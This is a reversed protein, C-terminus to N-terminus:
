SNRPPSHEEYPLTIGKYDKDYKICTIKAEVLEKIKVSCQVRRQNKSDIKAAIRFLGKGYTDYIEQRKQKWLKKHQAQGEPGNPISKVYDVFPQIAEETIGGWLIKYNEPNINFEYICNYRKIDGIQWFAGVIFTFETDRCHRIIRQIDGSDISKGEKSTKISCNVDSKVGKAIDWVSTYGDELLTQYDNKSIGIRAQIIKDEFVLGHKQVEM